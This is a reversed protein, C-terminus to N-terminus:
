RWTTRQAILARMQDVASCDCPFPGPPGSVAACEPTHLEPFELHERPEAATRRDKLENLAEVVEVCLWPKSCDSAYGMLEILREDTVTKTM